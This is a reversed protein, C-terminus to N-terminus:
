RVKIREIQRTKWKWNRELKEREKKKKTKNTLATQKRAGKEKM